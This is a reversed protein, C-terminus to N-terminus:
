IFSSLPFQICFFYQGEQKKILCNWPITLSFMLLSALLFIWIHTTKKYNFIVFGLIPFFILLFASRVLLASGMLLGLVLAYKLAVEINFSLRDFFKILFFLSCFLFLNFVGESLISYSATILFPNFIYLFFSILAARENSIRRVLNYFILAAAVDVVILFCRTLPYGGLKYFPAILISFLPPWYGHFYFRELYVNWDVRYPNFLKLFSYARDAYSDEDAYPGLHFIYISLLIRTVVLIILGVLFTNSCNCIIVKIKSLLINNM